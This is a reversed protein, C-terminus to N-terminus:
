VRQRPDLADRLGDGIFNIALVKGRLDALTVSRGSSETLQFPPLADGIALKPKSPPLESEGTRRIRRAVSRDRAITLDFQIRAGPHLGALDRADEVRFPMLMAGMYNAIPRHSVLMTRAASDIAVVVGDVSYTKAALTPAALTAAALLLILFRM